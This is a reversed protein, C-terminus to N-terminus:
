PLFNLLNLRYLLQNLRESFIKDFLKDGSIIRNILRSVDEGKLSFLHTITTHFLWKKIKTEAETCPMIAHKSLFAQSTM